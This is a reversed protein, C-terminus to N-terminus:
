AEPEEDIGRDVGSDVVGAFDVDFKDVPDGSDAGSESHEHVEGGGGGWCLIGKESM